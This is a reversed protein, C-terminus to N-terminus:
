LLLILLISFRRRGCCLINMVRYMHSLKSVVHKPRHPGDDSLEYYEVVSLLTVAGYTTQNQHSRMKCNVM